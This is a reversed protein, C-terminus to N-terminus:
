SLASLAGALTTLARVTKPITRADHKRVRVFGAVAAFETAERGCSPVIRLRVRALSSQGEIASEDILYVRVALEAFRLALTARRRSPPEEEDLDGLAVIRPLIAADGDLRDLFVERALRCARRTPLYLTAATLALPNGSAPFGPILKGARLADILVPLFPASAPINFVNARSVPMRRHYM